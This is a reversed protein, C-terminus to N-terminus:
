AKQQNSELQVSLPLHVQHWFRFSLFAQLRFTLSSIRLEASYRFATALYPESQNNTFIKVTDSSPHQAVLRM